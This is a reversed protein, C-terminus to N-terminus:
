ALADTKLLHKLITYKLMTTSWFAVLSLFSAFALACNQLNWEWFELDFWFTKAVKDKLFFM